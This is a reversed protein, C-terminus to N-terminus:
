NSNQRKNDYYRHSVKTLVASSVVAFTIGIALKAFLNM